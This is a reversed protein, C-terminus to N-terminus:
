KLENVPVGVGLMIPANADNLPQPAKQIGALSAVHASGPTALTDSAVSVAADSGGQPSTARRSRKARAVPETGSTKTTAAAAKTESPAAASAQGAVGSIVPASAEAAAEQDQAPAAAKSRAKRRSRSRPARTGQAEESGGADHSQAEASNDPLAAELNELTLEPASAESGARRRRANPM